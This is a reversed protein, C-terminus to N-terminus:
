MTASRRLKKNDVSACEALFLTRQKRKRGYLGSEAAPECEDDSHQGDDDVADADLDYSTKPVAVVLAGCNKHARRPAGAVVFGRGLDYRLDAVAALALFAGSTARKYAEYRFHSNTGPRKPNEQDYAILLDRSIIKKPDDVAVPEDDDDVEAAPATEAAEEDRDDDDDDRRPPPPPTAERREKPPARPTEPAEPPAAAAKAKEEEKRKKKARRKEKRRKKGDEKRQQKRGGRGGRRGGRGAGARSGGRGAGARSGGRGAGARSGGRAGASLGRRRRRQLAAPAKAKPKKKPALGFAGYLLSFGECAEDLKKKGFTFTQELLDRQVHAPADDGIASAARLCQYAVFGGGAAAVLKGAPSQLINWASAAETEGGAEEAPLEDDEAM